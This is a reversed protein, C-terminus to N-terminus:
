KLYQIEMGNYGYTTELWTNMLNKVAIEDITRKDKVILNMKCSANQKLVFSQPLRDFNIEEAKDWVGLLPVLYLNDLYLKEIYERVRLKDSCIARIESNDNIKLWQIKDNFTQPNELNLDEGTLVKYWLKLLRPYDSEDASSFINYMYEKASDTNYIKEKIKLVLLKLGGIKFFCILKSLM